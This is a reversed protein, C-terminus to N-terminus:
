FVRQIYWFRGTQVLWRASKVSKEYSVQNQQLDTVSKELCKQKM